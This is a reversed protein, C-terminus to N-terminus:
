EEEEDDSSIEVVRPAPRAIGVTSPPPTFVNPAKALFIVLERIGAIGYLATWGDRYSPPLEYVIVKTTTGRPSHTSRLLENWTVIAVTHSLNTGELFAQASRYVRV